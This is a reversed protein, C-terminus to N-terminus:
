SPSERDASRMHPEELLYKDYGAEVLEEYARWVDDPIDQHIQFGKEPYLRIRQLDGVMIGVVDDASL